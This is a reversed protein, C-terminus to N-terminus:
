LGVAERWRKSLSITTLAKAKEKNEETLGFIDKYKAALAGAKEDSSGIFYQRDDVELFMGEHFDGTLKLDPIGFPSRSGMKKKESAYSFLRYEPSIADGKITLGVEMQGRNLDVIAAENDQIADVKLTDIESWTTQMKENLERVSM